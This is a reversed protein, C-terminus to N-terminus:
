NAGGSRKNLGELTNPTFRVGFGAVFGWVMAKAADGNTTPDCLSFDKYSSFRTEGCEFEPFFDGQLFSSMFVGYLLAAFVGGVIPSLYIQAIALDTDVEVIEDQPESRLRQLHRINNALGGITGLALVPYFVPIEDLWTTVGLVVMFPIAVLLSVVLLLGVHRTLRDMISGIEIAQVGSGSM